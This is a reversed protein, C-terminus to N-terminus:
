SASVQQPRGDPHQPWDQRTVADQFHPFAETQCGNRWSVAPFCRALSPSWFVFKTPILRRHFVPEAPAAAESATSRGRAPCQPPLSANTCTCLQENHRFLLHCSQDGIEALGCWGGVDDYYAYGDDSDSGSGDMAASGEDPEDESADDGSDEEEGSAEEDSTDSAQVVDSDEDDSDSTGDDDAAAGAAVDAATAAAIRLLVPPAPAVFGAAAADDGPHVAAVRSRPATRPFGAKECCHLLVRLAALAELHTYKVDPHTGVNRGATDSKFSPCRDHRAHNPLRNFFGVAELQTVVNANKFQDLQGPLHQFVKFVNDTVPRSFGNRVSICGTYDCSQSGIRLKIGKLDRRYTADVAAGYLPM